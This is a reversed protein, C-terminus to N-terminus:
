LRALRRLFTARSTGAAWAAEAKPHGEALLRQALKM